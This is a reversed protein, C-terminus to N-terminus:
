FDIFKPEHKSHKAVEVRMSLDLVYRKTLYILELSIKFVLQVSHNDLNEHM